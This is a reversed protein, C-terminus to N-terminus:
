GRKYSQILNVPKNVDPLIVGDIDEYEQSYREMDVVNINSREIFELSTEPIYDFKVGHIDLTYYLTSYHTEQISVVEGELGKLNVQELYIDRHWFEKIVKVKDGVNFDASDILNKSEIVRSDGAYRPEPVYLGYLRAEGTVFDSEDTDFEIHELPNKIFFDRSKLSARTLKCIQTEIGQMIAEVASDEEPTRVVLGENEEDKLCKLMIEEAVKIDRLHLSPLGWVIGLEEIDDQRLIAM